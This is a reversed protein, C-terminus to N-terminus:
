WPEGSLSTVLWSMATLAFLGVVGESVENRPPRDRMVSAFGIFLPAVTIIGLADSLFWNRWTALIPATSGHFYKFGLVGGAGSLVTAAIATAVLGLVHRLRTLNFGMGFYREILGAAILAEGANCLAFILSALLSRDGLLNAVITAGMAGAIVPLRATQGLGILVGAAVGSAPWFVAVGDPKTLLALSLRAALFYAIGVAVTLGISEAWQRMPHVTAPWQRLTPQRIYDM